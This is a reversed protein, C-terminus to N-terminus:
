RTTDKEAEKKRKAATEKKNRQGQKWIDLSNELPKVFKDFEM